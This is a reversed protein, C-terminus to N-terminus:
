DASGQGAKDKMLKEIRKKKTLEALEKDWDRRKGPAAGDGGGGGGKKNKQKLYQYGLVLVVAIVMIPTKFNGFDSEVPPIYVSMMVESIEIEKGDNSLLAFLDGQQQTRKFVSWSRVATRRRRWVVPSMAESRRGVHSMNIAVVSWAGAAAGAGGGPSELGVAFGKISALDVIGQSTGKGFRWDLKCEKNKGKVSFVWITGAEDSILVRSPQQQDVTVATVKGEFGSCDVHRVEMKDPDVFGWEAGARFLLANGQPYLGEVGSGPTTAADLKTKLTGNKTFVSISGEADGAVFYKAGQTSALALATIRAAEGDIGDVASLQRHLQVTINLQAGMYQSVKESSSGKRAKKEDTTPLRPRVSVKYVRIVGGADATVVMSEDEKPSVALQVVPKDHGTNFTQVLDGAPTFMRVTGDENAAVLLALPFPPTTDSAGQANQPQKLPMFKVISAAQDLPIVAKTLVYDDASGTPAIDMDLPMESFLPLKETLARMHPAPLSINFGSEVVGQLDELMTIRENCLEIYQELEQIEQSVLDVMVMPPKPTPAARTAVNGRGLCEPSTSDASCVEDSADDSLKGVAVWPRSLAATVAL